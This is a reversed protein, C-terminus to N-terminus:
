RVAVTLVGFIGDLTNVYDSSRECYPEREVLERSDKLAPSFTANRALANTMERCGLQRLEALADGLHM